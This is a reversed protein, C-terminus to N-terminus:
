ETRSDDSIEFSLYKQTLAEYNFIYMVLRWSVITHKKMTVYTHGLLKEMTVYTQGLLKKM